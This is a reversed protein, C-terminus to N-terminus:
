KILVGNMVYSGKYAEVLDSEKWCDERWKPNGKDRVPAKLSRYKAPKMKWFSKRGIYSIDEKTCTIEYIFGFYKEPNADGGVWHHEVKELM